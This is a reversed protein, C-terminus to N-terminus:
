SRKKFEEEASDVVSDVEIVDEKKSYTVTEELTEPNYETTGMDSKHAGQMEVSMVGWKSILHRLMTKRCMADQSTKWPSSSSNYGKSYKRAHNLLKELSWFIEKKFSNNLEFFAFYGAIAANQRKIDDPIRSFKYEETFEDVTVIEGVRVDVVNIKKYQGSRIALQIYSKYSLQLTALGGFPVIYALGLSPDVPLGLAAAKLCCGMLSTPTVKQLDPNSGVISTMNSIFENSREALIKQVFNKTEDSRFIELSKSEFIAM